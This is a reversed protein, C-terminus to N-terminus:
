LVAEQHNQSPQRERANIAEVFKDVAELEDVTLGDITINKKEELDKMIKSSDLPNLIFGAEPQYPNFTTYYAANIPASSYAEKGKYWDHGYYTTQVYTKSKYYKRDVKAPYNIFYFPEQDIHHPLTSIRHPTNTPILTRVVGEPMDASFVRKWAFKFIEETSCFINTHGGFQDPLSFVWLPNENRFLWISNEDHKLLAVAMNGWINNLVWEIAGREDKGDALQKEFCRLIVESDTESAMDLSNQNVTDRWSPITGNHVMHFKNGWFPHNNNNILPSSGTGYRTHGIFARPIRSQLSLFKGSLWRFTSAPVPMKDCVLTGDKLRAAFGTSDTGRVESAAAIAGLLSFFETRNKRIHGTYGFIGCM